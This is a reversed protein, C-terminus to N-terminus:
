MPQEHYIAHDVWTSKQNEVYHLIKLSQLFFWKHYKPDDTSSLDEKEQDELQYKEVQDVLSVV